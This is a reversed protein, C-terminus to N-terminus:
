KTIPCNLRRFIETIIKEEARLIADKILQQRSKQNKTDVAVSIPWEKKPNDWVEAIQIKSVKWFNIEYHKTKFTYM